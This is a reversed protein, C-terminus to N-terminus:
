QACVGEVIMRVSDNLLTEIQKKFDEEDAILPTYSKLQEAIRKVITQNGKKITLSLEIDGFLNAKTLNSKNYTSLINKISLEITEDADKESGVIQFGNAELAKKLADKYWQVFDTASTEYGLNDGKDNTIIAVIQRNEREDKINKIYVKLAKKYATVFDAKYPEVQLARDKYACGSLMALFLVASALWRM